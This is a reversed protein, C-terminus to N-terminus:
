YFSSFRECGYSTKAKNEKELMDVRLPNLPVHKVAVSHVLRPPAAEPVQAEEKPTHQTNLM